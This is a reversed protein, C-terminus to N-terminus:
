LMREARGAKQQHQVVEADVQCGDIGADIGDDEVKDGLLEFLAELYVAM